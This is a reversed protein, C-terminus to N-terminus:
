RIFNLRSGPKQVLATTSGSWKGSAALHRGSRQVLIPCDQGYHDTSKNTLDARYTTFSDVKKKQTGELGGMNNKEGERRGFSKEQKQHKHL